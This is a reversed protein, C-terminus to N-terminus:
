KRKSKIVIYIINQSAKTDNTPLLNMPNKKVWFIMITEYILINYAFLLNNVICIVNGQM